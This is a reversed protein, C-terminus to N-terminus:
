AASAREGIVVPLEQIQGARTLRVLVPTGIRDETLVGLLQDTRHVPQGAVSLILDGLMLGSRAAPGDSEVSLVLLGATQNAEQALTAPLRVTHAALGLYGRRVRGYTLLTDAVRRLTAAPVTLVLGRVLGTTNLGVVRGSADVLPGGSIGLAPDVDSEVYRDIRSGGSTQWDPGLASLIGLRARVTRGPRALALVLHGVKLGELDRWVPIPLGTAQVRLIALDTGPDRGVLTASVEQGGSLTIVVDEEEERRVSHDTSLVVGDASWIMGTAPRRGASVRVIFPNAAEVAAALRDSLMVLQDTM